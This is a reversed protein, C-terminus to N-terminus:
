NAKRGPLFPLPAVPVGDDILKRAEELRAEGYISRAPADGQHMRRAEKVFDGGVYDSTEEIKRRIEALAQEAPSAPASLPRKRDPQDPEAVSAGIRPAMLEKRVGGGGCVACSVMGGTQLKEFAEASQFWSEFQHGDKCSLAYRIM